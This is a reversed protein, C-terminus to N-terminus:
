RNSRNYQIENFFKPKFSIDGNGKGVRDSPEPADGDDAGDAGVSYLDFSTGKSHYIMAKGSYPDNAESGLNFENLSSPYAGHQKYYSQLKLAIYVLRVRAIFYNYRSIYGRCNGVETIEDMFMGEEGEPPNPTSMESVPKDAEEMWKHMYKDLAILAASKPKLLYDRQYSDMPIQFHFGTMSQPQM